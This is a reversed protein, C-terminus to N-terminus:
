KLKEFAFNNNIGIDNWYVIANEFSVKTFLYICCQDHYGYIATILVENKEKPLENIFKFDIGIDQKFMPTGGLLQFFDTFRM